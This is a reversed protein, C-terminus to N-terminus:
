LEGAHASVLIVCRAERGDEDVLGSRRELLVVDFFTLILSDFSITMISVPADLPLISQFMVVIM